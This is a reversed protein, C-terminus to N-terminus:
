EEGVRRGIMAALDAINLLAAELMEERQEVRAHIARVEDLLAAQHSRSQYEVRHMVEAQAQMTSSFERMMRQERSPRSRKCRCWQKEQAEARKMMADQAAQLQRLMQSAQFQAMMWDERAQNQKMRAEQFPAKMSDERDQNQKMMAEQSCMQELLSVVDKDGGERREEEDGKRRKDRAEDDNEARDEEQSDM